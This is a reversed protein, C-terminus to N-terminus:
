RKWGQTQFRRGASGKAESTASGASDKKKALSSRYYPYFSNDPAFALRREMELYDEDSSSGFYPFVPEEGVRKALALQSGWRGRPLAFVACALSVILLLVAYLQM